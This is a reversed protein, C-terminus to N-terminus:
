LVVPLNTPKLDSTELEGIQRSSSSRKEKGANCQPHTNPQQLTEGEWLKTMEEFAEVVTEMARSFGAAM